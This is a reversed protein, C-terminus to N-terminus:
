LCFCSDSTAIILISKFYIIIIFTLYFANYIVQIKFVRLYLNDLCGTLKFTLLQPAM